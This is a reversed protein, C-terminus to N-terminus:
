RVLRYARIHPVDLEDNFVGFLRGDRGLRFVVESRSVPFRARDTPGEDEANAWVPVCEYESDESPIQISAM